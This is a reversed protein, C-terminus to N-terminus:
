CSKRNAAANGVNKEGGHRRKETVEANLGVPCKVRGIASSYGLMLREDKLRSGIVMIRITKSM